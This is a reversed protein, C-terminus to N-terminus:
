RAPPSAQALIATDSTLAIVTERIDVLAADCAMIVAQVCLSMSGCFMNLAEGVLSLDQGLHGRHGYFPTISDLPLHARVIQVGHNAFFEAESAPIEVKLLNGDADTFRKGAPFTVAIIRIHSFEPQSCFSELAVRVGEGKATFIIVKTVNQQKAAQFAAKLCESLNERGEQLFYITPATFQNQM